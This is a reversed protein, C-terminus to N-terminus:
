RDNTGGNTTLEGACAAYGILDIYNDEKIQGSRIRAVKLLAMM